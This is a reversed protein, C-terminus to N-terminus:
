HNPKLSKFVTNTENDIRMEEQEDIHKQQHCM